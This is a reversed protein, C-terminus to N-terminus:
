KHSENKIFDDNDKYVEYSLIYGVFFYFMFYQSVVGGELNFRILYDIFFYMLLFSWLTHPHRKKLHFLQSFFNKSGWLFLFLGILGFSYFISIYKNHAGGTAVLGYAARQYRTYDFYQSVGHGLLPKKQGEEIAYRWMEPRTNERDLRKEYAGKLNIIEAFRERQNPSIFAILNFSLLVVVIITAFKAVSKLAESLCFKQSKIINSFTLVFFACILDVRGGGWIINMGIASFILLWKVSKPFSDSWFVIFLILLYSINSVSGIRFVGLRSFNRLNGSFYPLFGPIYFSSESIMYAVLFIARLIFLFLIVKLLKAFDEIEVAVIFPLLITLMNLLINYYYSFNGMGFVDQGTILTPAMGMQTFWYFGIAFYLLFPWSKRWIFQWNLDKRVLRRFLLILFSLPLIAEFLDHGKSLFDLHFIYSLFVAIMIWKDPLLIFFLSFISGLIITLSLIVPGQLLFLLCIYTFIMGSIVFYETASQSDIKLM